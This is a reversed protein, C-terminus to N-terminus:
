PLLPPVLVLDLTHPFTKRFCDLVKTFPNNKFVILNKSTKWLSNLVYKKSLTKLTADLPPTLRWPNRIYSKVPNFIDEM